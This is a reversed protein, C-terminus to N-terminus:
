EDGIAADIMDRWTDRLQPGWESGAAEVMEDTPDRIARVIAAVLEEREEVGWRMFEENAVAAAEVCQKITESAM